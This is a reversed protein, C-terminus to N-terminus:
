HGLSLRLQPTEYQTTFSVLRWGGAARVLQISDIGRTVATAPEAPRYGEFLVFAHAIDGHVGIRTDVIREALGTAAYAGGLAFSRFDAVFRDTAVGVSDTGARIPAVFTAGELYIARQAAWNPEEGADFCFAAYLEDLTAHIAQADAGLPPAAVDSSQCGILVTLFFARVSSTMRANQGIAQGPRLPQVSM